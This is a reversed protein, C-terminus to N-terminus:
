GRKAELAQAMFRIAELPSSLAAARPTFTRSVRRARPIPTASSVADTTLKVPMMPKTPSTAGWIARISMPPPCRMRSGKEARHPEIRTSAASVTPLTAKEGM